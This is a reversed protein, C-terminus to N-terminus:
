ARLLDLVEGVAMLAQVDMEGLAAAHEPLTLVVAGVVRGDALLPFGFIDTVGLADGLFGTVDGSRDLDLASRMRGEARVAEVLGRDIEALRARADAPLTSIDLDVAASALAKRGDRGYLNVSSAGYLNALGTVLRRLLHEPRQRASDACLRFLFRFVGTNAM